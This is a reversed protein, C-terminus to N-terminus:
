FRTGAVRAAHGKTAQEAEQARVPSLHDDGRHERRPRLRGAEHDRIEGTGHDVRRLAAVAAAVDVAQRQQAEFFERGSIAMLEARRQAFLNWSIVIQGASDQTTTPVEIRVVHRMQGANPM